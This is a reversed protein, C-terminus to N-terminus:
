RNGEQYNCLSIQNEDDAAVLLPEYPHFALSSTYRKHGLDLVTKLALELKRPPAEETDLDARRRVRKLLSEERPPPAGLTQYGKM